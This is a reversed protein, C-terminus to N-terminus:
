KGLGYITYTGTTDGTAVFLEVGDYSTATSHNNGFLWIGPNTYASSTALNVMATVNTATAEFPRSIMAFISGTINNTNGVDEAPDRGYVHDSPLIRTTLGSAYRAYVAMRSGTENATSSGFDYSTLTNGGSAFNKADIAGMPGEGVLFIARLMQSGGLSYIQSWLLQTNVRVGGYVVGGITEKNAYVLPIISGLTSIEQTSNFGYRPAFRQNRTIAEGGRGTERIESPRRAGADPLKPKFFTSAVISGIGIVLSVVALVTEVGAIVAPEPQEAARRKVEAKFWAYEEDTLGLMSALYRDSPLLNM